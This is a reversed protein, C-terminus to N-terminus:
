GVSRRLLVVNDGVKAPTPEDDELAIPTAYTRKGPSYKSAAQHKFQVLLYVYGATAGLVLLFLLWFKASGAMLAFLFTIGSAGGLGFLVNRRRRQMPSIGGPTRRYTMPPAIPYGPARVPARTTTTGM